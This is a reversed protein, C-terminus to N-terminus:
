DDGGGETKEKEEEGVKSVRVPVAGEDRREFSWGKTERERSGLSGGVGAKGQVLTTPNM